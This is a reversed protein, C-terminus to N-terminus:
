VAALDAVAADSLASDFVAFHALNGSWPTTPTQNAGGIVTTLTALSGTWTGLGTQTSGRQTGELYFKVADASASWTVAVHFWGAPSYSSETVFNLTNGAEYNWRWTNNVLDKRAETYNQSGSRLTFAFHRSADTWVGSAVRAWICATGEAGNFADRFTTTYIDVFDDSNDFLPCTNGDGIGAQGLAPSGSYTGNQATNVQCVADTGSAEGLIWYAIPSYGLVKQTYTGGAGPFQLLLRRLLQKHRLRRRDM